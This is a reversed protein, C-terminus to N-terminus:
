AKGTHGEAEFPNFCAQCDAEKSGEGEREAGAESARGGERGRDAGRPAGAEAEKGAQGGRAEWDLRMLM